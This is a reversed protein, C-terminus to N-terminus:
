RRRPETSSVPVPQPAPLMGARLAADLQRENEFMDRSPQNIDRFAGQAATWLLLCLFGATALLYNIVPTLAFAGEDDGQLIVLLDLFKNSFGLVTPILVLLTFFWFWVRNRRSPNSM